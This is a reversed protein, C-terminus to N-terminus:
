SPDGYKQELEEAHPISAILLQWLYRALSRDCILDFVCENGLGGPRHYHLTVAVQQLRTRAAHAAAARNRQYDLGSLKNLLWPAASGALRFVALGASVDLAATHRPEVAAQVQECLRSASLYESFLLWEGPALCIVSPDQGLRQNVEAPLPIDCAAMDDRLAMFPLLSHIRLLTAGTLEHLVISSSRYRSEPLGAQQLATAHIEEIFDQWDIAGPSGPAGNTTDPNM